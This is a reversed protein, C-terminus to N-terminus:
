LALLAGGRYFRAQLRGCHRIYKAHGSHTPRTMIVVAWSLHAHNM